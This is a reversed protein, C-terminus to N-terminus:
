HNVTLFTSIKLIQINKIGGNKIKKMFINSIFIKRYNRKKIRFRFWLRPMYSGDWINVPNEFHEQLHDVYETIRDEKSNSICIFYQLWHAAMSM